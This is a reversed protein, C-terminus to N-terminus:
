RRLSVSKNMGRQRNLLSYLCRAVPGFHRKDIRCIPRGFTQRCANSPTMRALDRGHRFDPARRSRRSANGRRKRASVPLERANLDGYDIIILDSRSRSKPSCVDKQPIGVMAVCELYYAM